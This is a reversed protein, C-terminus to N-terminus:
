WAPGYLNGYVPTPTPLSALLIVSLMRGDAAARLGDRNFVDLRLIEECRGSNARSISRDRYQPHRQCCIDNSAHMARIVVNAYTNSSSAPPAM